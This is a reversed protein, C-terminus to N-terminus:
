MFWLWKVGRLYTSLYIPIEIIKDLDRLPYKRITTLHFPHTQPARAFFLKTTNAFFM